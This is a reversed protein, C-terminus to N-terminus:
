VTQVKRGDKAEKRFEKDWQKAINAWSYKKRAWPMMKKRQEEQWRPSKLAKILAKKYEELVAPEYIDGKIKVGFQVTEDLAAYNTTVPVAGWLEAKFASICNIEYFHSPYAFIGCKKYWKEIEPQSVRGHHVIGKAQMMEEMKAKWAMREPNDHYFKDFLQWGYFIHLQADPVAKVVDPWIKLLHQLGRDYSSTWICWKPNNKPKIKPFHEFFGNSSLMIKDDPINPATKRHAKSLVIVKTIKDLREKTFEQPNLVDHAWLYTQEAKYNGDFFRVDRWGILINFSDHPNFEYYPLWMVGSYEGADDGPDGFVTVRWGLRALERAMYIVAEESGGLFSKGPNELKRPSWPTFGPGCYIAIEDKEWDRPPLFRKRVDAVIPNKEIIAPAAQLLPRIKYIEHTAELYKALAVFKKSVEKQEKLSLALQYREQMPQSDPFLEVLKKAAALAEDIKSTNISYHWVVELARAELDRPNIVLTTKPLPIKTAIKVWHLAKEWEKKYLYTLAMNLYVSPFQPAEEMANLCCKIAKNFEGRERYIEALYEWAQAREEAWGSMNLYKLFLKEAQGIHKPDHLDFYAKGLYYIPRPDKWKTDQCNKELIRINRQLANVMREGNSLHVILILDKRKTLDDIDIQRTERQPILAEHIPAVWRYSDDNRVLRERLHEVLVAKVKGTEDLEVQYLYKLFVAGFKNKAALQAVEQLHEAGWVVDDSDMWFIWDYEKPVQEWNFNRAASFNDIWKFYSTHIGEKKCWKETKRINRKNPDTLTIYFADVFPLITKLGRKLMPLESDGRTIMALAIKQKDM